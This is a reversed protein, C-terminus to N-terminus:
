ESCGLSIVERVLNQCRVTSECPGSVMLKTINNTKIFERLLEAYEKINNESLNWIVYVPKKGQIFTDNPTLQTHKYKKTLAYSVTCETGRGTNPISYRFALLAESLDVNKRDTSAYSPKDNELLGFDILELNPGSETKYEKNAYGMIGIKLEKAALLAGMDAGAVGASIIYM